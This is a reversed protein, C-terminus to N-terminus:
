ISRGYLYSTINDVGTQYKTQGRQNVPNTFDSNDLLNPIPMASIKQRMSDISEMIDPHTHEVEAAGVQEATVSHPNSTNCSHSAINSKIINITADLDDVCKIKTVPYLRHLDGAEDRHTLCGEHEYIAM